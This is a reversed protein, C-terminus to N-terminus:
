KYDRISPELVKSFPPPCPFWISRVRNCLRKTTRVDRIVSSVRADPGFLPPWTEAEVDSFRSGPARRDSVDFVRRAVTKKEARVWKKSSPNIFGFVFKRRFGNRWFKRRGFFGFIPSPKRAHIREGIARKKRILCSLFLIEDWPTKIPRKKLARRRQSLFTRDNKTDRPRHGSDRPSRLGGGVHDRGKFDRSEGGGGRRRWFWDDLTTKFYV